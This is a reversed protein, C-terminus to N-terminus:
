REPLVRVTQVVTARKGKTGQLVGTVEYLDSPLGRLQFVTTRPAREGELQVHSSRFFDPSEATVTLARNDAHTEVSLQLTLTGPAFRSVRMRLPEGSETSSATTLLVGLLPAIRLTTRMM